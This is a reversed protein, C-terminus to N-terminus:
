WRILHLVFHVPNALQLLASQLKKEIFVPRTALYIDAVWLM